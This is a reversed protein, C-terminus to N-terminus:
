SMSFVSNKLQGFLGTWALLEQQACNIDQVATVFIAFNGARKRAFQSRCDAAEDAWKM